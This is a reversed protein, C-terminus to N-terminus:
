SRRVDSQKLVENRIKDRYMKNRYSLQFRKTDKEIMKRERKTTYEEKRIYCHGFIKPGSKEKDFFVEALRGNILAFCWSM